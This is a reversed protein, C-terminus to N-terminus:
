GHFTSDGTQLLSAFRQVVHHIRPAGAQLALDFSISFRFPRLSLRMSNRCINLTRSVGGPRPRPATSARMAFVFARFAKAAELANIEPAKAPDEISGFMPKLKRPKGVGEYMLRFHIFDTLLEVALEGAEIEALFQLMNEAAESVTEVPIESYHESLGEAYKKAYTELAMEAGLFEAATRAVAIEYIFRPCHM